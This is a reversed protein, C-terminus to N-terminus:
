EYGPYGAHRQSLGRIRRRLNKDQRGSRLGARLAGAARPLLRGEQLLVPSEFIGLIKPWIKIILIKNEMYRM